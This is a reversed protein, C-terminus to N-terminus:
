NCICGPRNTCKTKAPSKKHISSKARKKGGDAYVAITSLMFIAIVAIIIKKM